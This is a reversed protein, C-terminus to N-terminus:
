LSKKTAWPHCTGLYTGASINEIAKRKLAYSEEQLNLVDV